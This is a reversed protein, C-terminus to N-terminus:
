RSGGAALRDLVSAPLAALDSDSMEALTAPDMPDIQQSSGVRSPNPPLRQQLDLKAAREQPSVGGLAPAQAPQQQQGGYKLDMGVRKALDVVAERLIMTSRADPTIAIGQRELAERARPVLFDQVDDQPVRDFWPNDRQLRTLHDSVVPDRSLQVAFTEPDPRALEARAQDQEALLRREASRFERLTIEGQDYRDALADLQTELAQVPDTEQQQQQEPARTRGFAELQGALYANHQALQDLRQQLEGGQRLVEDLRAKPIMPMPQPKQLRDLEAQDSAEGGVPEPEPQPKAEEAAALRELEALEADDPHLYLPSPQETAQVETDQKEETAPATM